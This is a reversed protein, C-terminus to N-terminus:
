NEICVSKYYLNTFLFPVRYGGGGWFFFVKTHRDLDYVFKVKTFNLINM